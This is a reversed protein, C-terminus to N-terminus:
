HEVFSGTACFLDPNIKRVRNTAPEPGALRVDYRFKRRAFWSFLNNYVRNAAPELGASRVMIM